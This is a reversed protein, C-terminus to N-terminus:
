SIESFENGLLEPRTNTVTTYQRLDQSGSLANIVYKSNIYSEPCFDLLNQICHVFYNFRQSNGETKFLGIELQM